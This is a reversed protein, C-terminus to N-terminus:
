FTVNPFHLRVTNQGVLDIFLTYNNAERRIRGAVIAPSISLDNALEIVSDESRIYRAPSTEWVANPILAESAFADAEKEISDPNSELDDFYCDANKRGLHKVLHALEHYLVFWFNDIRDYRVTLGIVPSGNPLQMVAGDLFTRTLHQEVILYIGASALHKKAAIPSDKRKSLKALARLWDLTITKENYPNQLKEKLALRAIRTQWAILAYNDFSSEARIHKRTFVSNPQPYIPRIFDKVLAEGIELAASLNGNFGEFWNRKYMEAIPFRNWDVKQQIDKIKFEAIESIELNLVKAIEALRSLSASKYMEAEYRQIQQEKVSLLEAFKKQSLGKAIRAKILLEPLAELSDVKFNVIQGSKLLKYEAIEESLVDYESKLANLQVEEMSKKGAKKIDLAAELQLIEKQFKKAQACTILYQRDNTIM